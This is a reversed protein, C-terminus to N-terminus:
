GKEDTNDQHIQSKRHNKNGDEEHAHIVCFPNIGQEEEYASIQEQCDGYRTIRIKNPDSNDPHRYENEDGTNERREGQLPKVSAIRKIQIQRSYGSKALLLM